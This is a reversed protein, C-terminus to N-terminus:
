EQTSAGAGEDTDNGNRTGHRRRIVRVVLTVLGILILVPALAILVTIAARVLAAASRVGDTVAQGLGWGGTGPSVLPGPESLSITLTAMAAQRELYTLQAQMSEIEGRVRSLESEVALLESVRGTRALFTRLRAEEAQLNKLRAAMDVHQQTVDDASLSQSLVTGLKAVDREVTTLKTVPVRLTVQASMPGTARAAGSDSVLPVPQPSIDGSTVVLTSIESQSASALARIASLSKEADRVRLEMSASSVVLRQQSSDAAPASSVSEPTPNALPAGPAVGGDAAPSGAANGYSMGKSASVTASDIAVSGGSPQLGSAAVYGVAVAFGLTAIIGLIKLVPRRLAKM